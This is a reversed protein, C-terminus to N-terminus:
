KYIKDGVEVAKDVKFGIEEGKKAVKVDVKDIQMSWLKQVFKTKDGIIHVKDGILVSGQNIRMVAVKIRDFYHTIEGIVTLHPDIIPQKPKITKLPKPEKVPKVTKKVTKPTIKKISKKKVTKKPAPTKKKAPSKRKKSKKIWFVEKIVNIIKELM